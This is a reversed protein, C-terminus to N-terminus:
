DANGDAAVTGRSWRRVRRGMQLLFGFSSPRYVRTSVNERAETSWRRFFASDGHFDIEELRDAWAAELLHEFLLTGPSADKIAPDYHMFHAYRKRADGLMRHAAVLRGDIRMLWLDGVEDDDLSELLAYDFAEDAAVDKPDGQSQGQWSKARLGFLEPLAAAIEDRSSLRQYDVKGLERARKQFKKMQWRFNGSKGARYENWTGTIPLYRLHRGPEFADRRLGRDALAGDLPALLRPDNPINELFLVDWSRLEALASILATLVAAESGPRALIANCLTHHNRLFGIERYPVGSQKVARPALTMLGLLEDGDLVSLLELETGEGFCKWLARAFGYGGFVTSHPQETRLRKWAAALPAVSAWDSHRTVVLSNRVARNLQPVATNLAAESSRRFSTGLM